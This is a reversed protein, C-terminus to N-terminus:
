INSPTPRFRGVQTSGQRLRMSIPTCRGLMPGVRCLNVRSEQGVQGINTARAGFKHVEPMFEISDPRNRSRGFKPRIRGQGLKSKAAHQVSCPAVEAWLARSLACVDPSVSALMRVPPRPRRRNQPFITVPPRPCNEGHQGPGRHERRFIPNTSLAMLFPKTWLARQIRWRSISKSRQQSSSRLLSLPSQQSWCRCCFRLMHSLCTLHPSM